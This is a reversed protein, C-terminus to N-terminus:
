RISGLNDNSPNYIGVDSHLKDINADKSSGVRHMFLRKDRLSSPSQNTRNEPNDRPDDRFGNRDEVIQEPEGYAKETHHSGMEDNYGGKGRCVRSKLCLDQEWMSKAFCAM